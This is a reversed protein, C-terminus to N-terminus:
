SLKIIVCKNNKDITKNFEKIYELLLKNTINELEESPIKM